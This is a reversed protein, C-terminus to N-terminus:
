KIEKCSCAPGGGPVTGAPVWHWLIRAWTGPAPLPSVLCHGRPPDEGLFTSSIYESVQNGSRSTESLHTLERNLMRKFQPCHAPSLPAPPLRSGRSGTGPPSQPAPPDM